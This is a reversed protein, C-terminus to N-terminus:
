GDAKLFKLKSGTKKIAAQQLAEKNRHEQNSVASRQYSETM